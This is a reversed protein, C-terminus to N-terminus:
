VMVNEFALFLKKTNNESMGNYYHDSITKPNSGALMSVYSLTLGNDLALSIATHRFIYNHLRFNWKLDTAVEKLWNNLKERFKKYTYDRIKYKCEKEDNMIPFIYGYKSRDKYKEIIIEMRPHIPLQVVKLTKKRVFSLTSNPMINIHKMNIVDCPACFSYFMFICFDYYLEVQERDEYEPTLGELKMSLFVKLQKHTLIDPVQKVRNYANPNYQHFNFNGIQLINFKVNCDKDARGLMSRFTKCTMRYGKYKSFARAIDICRDFDLSQFTLSSFNRIAKRCKGLLNQYSEFNCGPKLKEREIILILFNEISSSYDPEKDGEILNKFKKNPKYFTAVQRADLEPYELILKRYINKFDELVQNNQACSAARSSFREKDPMWYCLKPNGVLINSVSKYYREKKESIRLVLINDKIIFKLKVM